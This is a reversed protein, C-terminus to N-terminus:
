LCRCALHFGDVVEFRESANYTHTGLLKPAWDPGIRAIPTERYEDSTLADIRNLVVASGYGSSCDQSPRILDGDRRM